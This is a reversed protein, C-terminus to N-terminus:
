PSVEWVAPNMHILQTPRGRGTSRQEEIRLYGRAALESLGDELLEAKKFRGNCLALLESKSVTGRGNAKLRKLIYKADREAPTETFGMSLFAAKAHATFYRAISVAAQMTAGSILGDASAHGFQLCHLVGALRMTQGHLKGAWDEIDEMGDVLQPEIEYFFAEALAAADASLKLMQAPVTEDIQLLDMLAREYEQYIFESVPEVDYSRSGVPSAPISYLFRALLGRGKMRDDRMIEGLVAPQAMLAITLTPHEIFESKRGKRDIHIPDGSYGKLYIDMNPKDSYRGAITDFTGGEASIVAMREGSEAMLSTLAEPTADDALLRLPKVETLADLAERASLVEDMTAKGTPKAASETLANLRKALVNREAQYAAIEPACRENEAKLFAYVPKLLKRMVPSKRESPKAITLTYLNLPEVWGPKPCILFKGQVCLAAVALGVVAPMDVATQLERAVALAYKQLAFPLAGAPFAPLGETKAAAFPAYPAFDEGSLTSFVKEPQGAPLAQAPAARWNLDDNEATRVCDAIAKQITRDLYDAREVAKKRHKEDKTACHPSSLFAAKMSEARCSCWYALKNMLAQDDASENGHPRAGEWLARFTGDKELGIALFDRGEVPVNWSRAASVAAPAPTREKTPFWEAFLAAIEESREALPRPEGFPKGTVTFYRAAQYMERGRKDDKRGKEPIQGRVYIHLGTGSPSYETYSNLKDVVALASANIEGTEPDIVHDLDVGVIGNNHFAFGVGDYGGSAQVAEGFTAWTDPQGAKAGKGTRPDIPIKGRRCVWQPLAKLEAPFHEYM